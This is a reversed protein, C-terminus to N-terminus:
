VSEGLDVLSVSGLQTEMRPTKPSSPPLPHFPLGAWTLLAPPSGTVWAGGHLGMCVRSMGTPATHTLTSPKVAAPALCRSPSTRPSMSVHCQEPHLLHALCLAGPKEPFCAGWGGRDLCPRCEGQQAKIQPLVAQLLTLSKRHYEAQVEILQPFVLTLMVRQLLTPLVPQRATPTGQERGWGGAIIPM